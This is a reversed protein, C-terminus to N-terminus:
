HEPDLGLIWNRAAVFLLVPHEAVKFNFHPGAPDM